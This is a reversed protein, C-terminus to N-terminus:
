VRAERSLSDLDARRIKRPDRDTRPDEVGLRSSPSTRRGSRRTGSMSASSYADQALARWVTRSHYIQDCPGTPNCDCYVTM